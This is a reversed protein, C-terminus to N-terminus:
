FILWLAIISYIAALGDDFMVGFPGNLNQDIQSIPPPKLMDFIRFLIFAAIWHVWSSGLSLHPMACAVLAMGFVEDIVVSKHDHEGTHEEVKRCAWWGIFFSLITFIYLIGLETYETIAIIFPLSAVTGWTGAMPLHGVKGWTAIWFASHPYPFPLAKAKQKEKRASIEFLKDLTKKMCSTNSKGNHIDVDQAMRM